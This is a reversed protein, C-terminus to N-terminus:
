GKSSQKFSLKMSFSDAIKYLSPALVNSISDLVDAGHVEYLLFSIFASLGYDDIIIRLCSYELVDGESSTSFIIMEKWDLCFIAGLFMNEKVEGSKGEFHKKLRQFTAKSSINSKTAVLFAKSHNSVEKFPKLRITHLIQQLAESTLTTKVEIIGKVSKPSVVVIENEDFFIPYEARDYCIIDLQSSAPNKM